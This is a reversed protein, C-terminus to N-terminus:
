SGKPYVRGELLFHWVPLGFVVCSIFEGLAVQLGNVLWLPFFTQATPGSVLALELGIVLGNVLVPMLAGAVPWGKIRVQRLAYTLVGAILTALTGFIIDLGGAGNLGLAVGLVNTLFCGLTLGLIEKRGALALLTLVESIRVQWPGFSIPAALLSLATYMAAILASAALQKLAHDHSSM